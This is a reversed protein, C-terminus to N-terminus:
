DDLANLDGHIEAVAEEWGVSEEDRGCLKWWKLSVLHLYWGNLGAASEGLGRLRQRWKLWASSFTKVCKVHHTPEHHLPKSNKIWM